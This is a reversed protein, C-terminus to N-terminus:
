DLAIGAKALGDVVRDLLDPLKVLPPPRRV